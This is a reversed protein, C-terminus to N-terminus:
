SKKRKIFDDEDFDEGLYNKLIKFETCTDLDPFIYPFSVSSDAFSCQHPGDFQLNIDNYTLYYYRDGFIIVEDFLTRCIEKPKHLDENLINSNFELGMVSLEVGDFLLASITSVQGDLVVKENVSFVVNDSLREASMIKWGKNIATTLYIGRPDDSDISHFKGTSANYEKIYGMPNEIRLIKFGLQKIERDKLFKSFINLLGERDEEQFDFGNESNLWENFEDKLSIKM